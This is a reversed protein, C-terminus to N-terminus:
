RQDEHISSPIVGSLLGSNLQSISELQFTLHIINFRHHILSLISCLSLASLRFRSECCHNVDRSSVFILTILVTFFLLTCICSAAQSSLFVLMLTKMKEIKLLITKIIVHLWKCAFTYMKRHSSGVVTAISLLCEKLRMQSSHSPEIQYSNGYHSILTAAM